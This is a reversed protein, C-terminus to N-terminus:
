FPRLGALDWVWATPSPQPLQAAVYQEPFYKASARDGDSRWCADHLKTRLSSKVTAREHTVAPTQSIVASGFAVLSLLMAIIGLRRKEASTHAPRTESEAFAPAVSALSNMTTTKM